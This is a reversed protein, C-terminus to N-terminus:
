LIIAGYGETKDNKSTNSRTNSETRIKIELGLFLQAGLNEKITGLPYVLIM